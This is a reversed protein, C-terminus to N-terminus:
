NKQKKRFLCNSKKDFNAPCMSCAYIISTENDEQIDHEIKNNLKGKENPLQYNCYDYLNESMETGNTKEENSTEIEINDLKPNCPSESEFYQICDM